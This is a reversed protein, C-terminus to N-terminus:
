HILAPPESWRGLKKAFLFVLAVIVIKSITLILTLAAVGAFNGTSYLSLTQSGLTPNGPGALMVSMELDSLVRTFLLGWAVAMSGVMLPMYVSRFTRFPRGGALNSAEELEKNVQAAAPDTIITGQPVYLALLAIFLITSTGALNLPPGAFALVFGLAIVLNSVVVPLKIAGDLIAVARSRQRNLVSLAAAIFVGLTAVVLALSFSNEIAEVTLPNDLIGGSFADFSFNSWQINSTWYGNLAVILLAIAPFLTGLMAYLIIAARIPWKWRGMARRAPRTTAKGGVGSHRSRTTIRRSMLWVVAIFAVMILSMVTAAGESPPYEGKLLRVIEVSMIEIGAQGAIAQPLAYMGFSSWVVLLLASLASPGLAPFVVTVLTRRESVGCMWSQEELQPDLNRLGAALMLYAFPVGHIVYLFILGSWSYIDFPGTTITWGVLGALWRIFVNAFGATPSLLFVWGYSFAIAPFFFPFIPLNDWLNGGHVDTRENVWALAGGLALALVSSITVVILTHIVATGTGPTSAFERLAAASPAGDVFFINAVISLLPYIVLLALVAGTAFCIARFPSSVVSSALAVARQLVEPASAQRKPPLGALDVASM